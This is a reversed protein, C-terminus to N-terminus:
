ARARGRLPLLGPLPRSPAFLLVAFRRDDDLWGESLALGASRGLREAATLDYKYSRETRISEGDEFTFTRGGLRVEQRRASVLHMEIRGPGPDYFAYHRFADLDFDAGLEVNMRRLVNKNFAATIGQADNYAAHLAAPDKKLDIGLLVLGEPGAARRFRSLLRKAQDPDFNGITSGPFYVVTRTAPDAKLLPLDVTFDAVFPKVRLWPIEARLQAAAHALHRGSIDVPVYAVCRNSGLARLLLRSKTGSGAGPEVVRCLAGAALRSAIDGARADLISLETRTVYYEPLECIADFLLSGESDYFYKPSIRKPASRLGLIADRLFGGASSAGRASSAGCSSLALLVARKERSGDLPSM